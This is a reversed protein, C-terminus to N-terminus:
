HFFFAATNVSCGFRLFTATLEVVGFVSYCSFYFIIRCVLLHRNHWSNVDCCASNILVLYTQKYLYLWLVLIITIICPGVSPKYYITMYLVNINNFMSQFHFTVRICFPLGCIKLFMFIHLKTASM